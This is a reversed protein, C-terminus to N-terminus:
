GRWEALRRKLEGLVPVPGPDVGEAAALHLSV